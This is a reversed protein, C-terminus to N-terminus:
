TVIIARVVLTGNRSVHRWRIVNETKQVVTPVGQREVVVPKIDDGTWSSADFPEPNISLM